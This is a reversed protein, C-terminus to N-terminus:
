KSRIFRDAYTNIARAWIKYGNENPHLLDPMINRSLNGNKDLLQSNINCFFVKENDALKQIEKNVQENLIRIPDAPTEGRPFIAFLLIPSSPVKEQLKKIILKIGAATAAADCSGYGTNNTGIMLVILGPAPSINEFFCGKEILWLTNGTRDGSHGLNLVNLDSFYKAFTNKGKNEWYNTISDGLWVMDINGRCAAIQQRKSEYRQYWSTTHNAPNAAPAPNTAIKLGFPERPAIEACEEVKKGTTCGAILLTSLIVGSLLLKKM